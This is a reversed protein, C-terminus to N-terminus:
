RVSPPSLRSSAARAQEAVLASPDRSLEALGRRAAEPAAPALREIAEVFRSRRIWSPESASRSLVLALGAESQISSLLTLAAEFPEPEPDALAETLAELARPRTPDLAAIALPRLAAGASQAHRLVQEELPARLPLAPAMGLLELARAARPQTTDLSLRLALTLPEGCKAVVSGTVGQEPGLWDSLAQELDLSSKTRLSGVGFRPSPSSDGCTASLARAAARRTVDSPEFLLGAARESDKTTWTGTGALAVLALASTASTGKASASRLTAEAHKSRSQALMSVALETVLPAADSRALLRSLEAEAARATKPSGLATGLGLVAEGRVRVDTSELAVSLLELAKPSPTQAAGRVAAQVVPGRGLGRENTILAAYRTTLDEGELGITLLAAELRSDEDPGHAAYDLLAAGRGPTSSSGLLDLAIRQEERTGSSLAMLLPRTFHSTLESDSSAGRARAATVLALYLSRYRSPGPQVVLPRLARELEDYRDRAISLDLARGAARLSLEPDRTKQLVLLTQGEAEDLKKRAALLEALALRVSHLEPDRELARRYAAEASGFHGQARLLHGLEAQGAADKPDGAALTAYRLADGDRKLARAHDVMKRYYSTARNPDREVLRGLTELAGEHRGARAQVMELELLSARDGPRLTLIRLLLAEAREDHRLLLEAEVLLLGADVDPPEAFFRAERRQSAPGLEGIRRELRVIQRRAEAAREQGRDSPDASKRVRNWLELARREYKRKDRVEALAAARTLGLAVSRLTTLNSPDLREAEELAEVGRALDDHDILTEGYIM